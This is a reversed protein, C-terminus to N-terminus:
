VVGDRGPLQDAGADLARRPLAARHGGAADRRHALVRGAARRPRPGAGGQRRRRAHLRSGAGQPRGPPRAVRRRAPRLARPERRRPARRRSQDDLQGGRRRGRRAARGAHPRELQRLRVRGSRPRDGARGDRCGRGDRSLARVPELARRGAATRARRRARRGGRARARRAARRLPVREGPHRVDLRSARAATAE